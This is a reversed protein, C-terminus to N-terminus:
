LKTDGVKEIWDRTWDVAEYGVDAVTNALFIMGEIRGERLWRLGTECQYKMADIPTSRKETFDVVYCGLMIRCKPALARTKKLNEELHVLDGPKWTWLTLVDMLEMYERVPYELQTTYVTMYIDLKNSSSNLDRRFAKLEDLSLIAVRDKRNTFFDDLFVGVINPTRKALDIIQPNEEKSRPYHSSILSWVVRKLPRLGIAYQDFPPEWATFPDNHEESPIIQVMIINPVALYFAFEAPSMVSRRKINPYDSNVPCCFVWFCDRVTGAKALAGQAAAPGGLALGSLGGAATNMFQRRGSKPTASQFDM